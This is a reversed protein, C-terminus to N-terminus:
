RGVAPLPLPGYITGKRRQQASSHPPPPPLPKRTKKQPKQLLKQVQKNVDDAEKRVTEVDRELEKRLAMLQETAGDIADIPDDDEGLTAPLDDSLAQLGDTLRSRVSAIAPSLSTGAAANSLELDDLSTESAIREVEASLQEFEDEIYGREDDGLTESASQVALERMRKLIHAVDNTSGEATQLISLGDTVNRMAQRLSRTREDLSQSVGLGAADDAAKNIRVGSSIRAFTAALANNTQMLKNHANLSQLNTNVVLASRLAGTHVELGAAVALVFVSLLVATHGARQPDFFRM